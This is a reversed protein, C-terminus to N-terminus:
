TKALNVGVLLTKELNGGTVGEGRVRNKTEERKQSAKAETHTHTNTRKFTERPPLCHRFHWPAFM